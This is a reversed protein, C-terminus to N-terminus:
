LSTNYPRGVLFGIVDFAAGPTLVLSLGWSQSFDTVTLNPVCSSCVMKTPASSTLLIWPLLTLAIGGRLGPRYIGIGLDLRTERRVILAGFPEIDPSDGGTVRDSDPLALDHVFSGFSVGASLMLRASGDEARSIDPYLEVRVHGEWTREGISFLDAGRRVGAAIALPPLDSDDPVGARLEAGSDAWGIDGSVEVASGLSQRVAIRLPLPLGQTIPGGNQANGSVRSGGVTASARGYAFALSPQIQTVTAPRLPGGPGTETLACGSAAGLAITLAAVQGRGNM